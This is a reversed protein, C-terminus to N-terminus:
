AWDGDGSLVDAGFGDEEDVETDEAEDEDEDAEELFRLCGPSCGKWLIPVEEDAGSVKVWEIREEAPMHIYIRRTIQGDELHGIDGIATHSPNPCPSFYPNASADEPKNEKNRRPRSSPSFAPDPISHKLKRSAAASVRHASRLAKTINDCEDMTLYNQSEKLAVADQLGHAGKSGVEPEWDIESLLPPIDDPHRPSLLVSICTNRLSLKFDPNTQLPGLKRGSPVPELPQYSASTKLPNM